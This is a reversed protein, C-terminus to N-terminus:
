GLNESLFPRARWARLLLAVSAAGGLAFLLWSPQTRGLAERPHAFIVALTTANFTAHLLICPLLSPSAWRLAGLAGAVVGLAPWSRPEAHSLTFCVGSVWVAFRASSARALWAWLAGRFFLEEVFPVLAAAALLLLAREGLSSPSLRAAREFLVADPLPLWREVWTEVFDAPGHLAVGLAAGVLLLELSAPGLGLRARPVEFDRVLWCALGLYVATEVLAAFALGRGLAPFTAVLLSSLAGILFVSGLTLVCAFGVAYLTRPLVM